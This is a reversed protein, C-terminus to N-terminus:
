LSNIFDLCFLLVSDVDDSSVVAFNNFYFTQHECLRTALCELVQNVNVGDVGNQENTENTMCHEVGMRKFRARFSSLVYESLAVPDLDAFMTYVHGLECLLRHGDPAMYSSNNEVCTFVLDIYGMVREVQLAHQLLHQELSLLVKEFVLEDHELEQSAMHLVREVGLVMLRTKIKPEVCMWFDLAEVVCQKHVQEVASMVGVLQLCNCAQDDSEQLAHFVHDISVNLLHTTGRLYGFERWNESKQRAVIEAQQHLSLFFGHHKTCFGTFFHVIRKSEEVSAEVACACEPSIRRRLAMVEYLLSKKKFSARNVENEHVEVAVSLCAWLMVHLDKVFLWDAWTNICFAYQPVIDMDLETDTAIADHADQRSLYTQLLADKLCVRAFLPVWVKKYLLSPVEECALMVCTANADIAIRLVVFSWIEFGLLLTSGCLTSERMPKHLLERFYIAGYKRLKQVHKQDMDSLSAMAAHGDPRVQRLQAAHAAFQALLIDEQTQMEHQRPM